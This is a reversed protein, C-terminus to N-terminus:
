SLRCPSHVQLAYRGEPFEAGPMGQRLHWGSGCFRDPRCCSARCPTGGSAGHFLAHPLRSRGWAGDPSGCLASPVTSLAGGGDDQKLGGYPVRSLRCPIHLLTSLLFPSIGLSYELARCATLHPM